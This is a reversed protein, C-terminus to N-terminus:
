RGLLEREAMEEPTLEGHQERWMYNLSVQSTEQVLKSFFELYVDWSVDKKAGADLNSNVAATFRERAAEILPYTNKHVRINSFDSASGKGEPRYLAKVEEESLGKLQSLLEPANQQTVVKATHYLNYVSVQSMDDLSVGAGVWASVAQVWRSVSSKNPLQASYNRQLIEKCQEYTRGRISQTYVFHGITLANKTRSKIADAILRFAEKDSADLPDAPSAETDEKEGSVAEQKTEQSSAGEGEELDDDEEDEPFDPLSRLQQTQERLEKVTFSRAQRGEKIVVRGQKWSSVELGKVYESGQKLKLLGLYDGLAMDQSANSQSM